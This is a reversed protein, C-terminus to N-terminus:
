IIDTLLESHKMNLIPLTLWFSEPIDFTYVTNSGKGSVTVNMMGISYLKKVVESKGKKYLYGPKWKSFSLLQETNFSIKM